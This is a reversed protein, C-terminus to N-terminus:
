CGLSARRCWLGEGVDISHYLEAKSVVDRDEVASLNLVEGQQNRFQFLPLTM